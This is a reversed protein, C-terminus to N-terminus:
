EAYQLVKQKFGDLTLRGAKYDTIWSKRASIVDTRKRKPDLVDVVLVLNVYEDPQVTTLSDGYNALTEILPIKVAELIKQRNQEEEELNKKVGAALKEAEKQVQRLADSGYKEAKQLQDPQIPPSPPAPPAPSVPPAPSAPPAPSLLPQPKPKPQPSPSATGGTGPGIGADMSARRAAMLAAERSLRAAERALENSRATIERFHEAMKQSAESTYVSTLEPLYLRQLGSATIVFVAGQGALYFADRNAFRAQLNQEASNVSHFTLKADLIGRMIELEERSKKVDFVDKKGQGLAVTGLSLFMMIVASYLKM